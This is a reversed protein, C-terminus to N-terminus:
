PLRQYPTRANITERTAVRARWDVKETSLPNDTNFVYLVDPIYIARERAMELMPTMLAIDGCVRLWEGDRDDHFDGVDIKDWLWKRFTRLHVGLFANKRYTGDRVIEPPYRTAWGPRGSALVFSGYTMWAGSAYAEDLREIVHDHALWDDGDVLVVVDDPEIEPDTGDKIAYVLNCMQYKRYPNKFIAWTNPNGLECLTNQATEYTKDTSDDDIVTVTYNTKRQGAISKLCREIWQEANRVTVVFHYIGPPDGVGLPVTAYGRLERLRDQRADMLSPLPYRTPTPPMACAAEYWKIAEGLCGRLLAIEGLLCLPEVMPGEALARSAWEAAPGYNQVDRYGIAIAMCLARCEEALQGGTATASFFVLAEHVAAELDGSEVLAGAKKWIATIQERDAFTARVETRADRRSAPTISAMRPELGDLVLDAFKKSQVKGDFHEEVWKRGFERSYPRALANGLEDLNRWISDRPWLDRAGPHDHVLPCLGMAMGEVISYGLTEWISASLIFNAGVEKLWTPTDVEGYITVNPPAVHRIYGILRPNTEAMATTIHLHIGPRQRAWELALQYGKDSTSRALMAIDISNAQPTRFPFRDLDIGAPIVDNRVDRLGPFREEAMRKLFKSEYVLAYVNQWALRDLPGWLDFGRMRVVLRNCGAQAVAYADENCWETWVLDAQQLGQPHPSVTVEHGLSRLYAITPTSFYAGKGVGKEKYTTSDLVLIKM